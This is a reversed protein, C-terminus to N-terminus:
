RVLEPRSELELTYARAAISARLDVTAWGSILSLGDASGSAHFRTRTPRQSGM